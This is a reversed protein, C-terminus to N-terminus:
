HALAKEIAEVMAPSDPRTSPGFRAIVKGQRDTVFKTFNWMISGGTNKNVSSDTLFRYLPAQKRGRVSIKAFMPFTVDYKRKCFEAIEADTGPEQWLFDNAPFGLVVLGRDKYKRYVAELAQYQPTFGCKSAVNVVIAVKGKFSDLPTSAGQISNVVFEHISSSALLPVSM